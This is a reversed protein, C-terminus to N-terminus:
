WSAKEKLLNVENVWDLIKRFQFLRLNVNFYKSGKEPDKFDIILRDYLSALLNEDHGGLVWTFKHKYSRPMFHWLGEQFNIDDMEDIKLEIPGNWPAWYRITLFAGTITVVAAYRCFIAYFMALFVISYIIMAPSFCCVIALFVASIALIFLCFPYKTELPYTQDPQQM